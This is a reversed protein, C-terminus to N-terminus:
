KFSLSKLFLDFNKQDLAVQEPKGSLSAVYGCNLRRFALSRIELLSNDLHAHIIKQLAPRNQFSIYSEKLSTPDEVSDEILRQLDSLSDSKGSQCDSLITLVNETIKNKWSPFVSKNLFYFPSSPSAYSVENSFTPAKEKLLSSVCSIFLIPCITIFLVIVLQKKM